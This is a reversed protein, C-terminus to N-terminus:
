SRGFMATLGSLGKDTPGPKGLSETERLGRVTNYDVGGFANMNKVISEAVLPDKALSPAHRSVVDFYGRVQKKNDALEPNNKMITDFSQDFEKKNMTLAIGGGLKKAAAAAIGGLAGVPGAMSGYVVSPTVFELAQQLGEMFGAEKKIQGTKLIAGPGIKDVANKTVKGLADMGTLAAGGWALAKKALPNTFLQDVGGTKLLEPNVNGVINKNGASERASRIGRPGETALTFATNSHKMALGATLPVAVVAGKAAASLGAKAAGGAMVAPVGVAKHFVNNIVAGAAHATRKIPGGGANLAANIPNQEGWFFGAVKELKNYIIEFVASQKTLIQELNELQIIEQDNHVSAVKILESADQYKIGYRKQGLAELNMYTNYNNWFENAVKELAELYAKADDSLEKQNATKVINKVQHENGLASKFESNSYTLSDFKPKVSATKEIKPALKSKVTDYNAVPFEQEGKKELLDLFTAKNTEEILREIQPKSLNQESAVKTIADNLDSGSCVHNEAIKKATLLLESPNM